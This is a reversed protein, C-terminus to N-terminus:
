VKDAEEWTTAWDALKRIGKMREEVVELRARDARWRQVMVQFYQKMDGDYLDMCEAQEWLEKVLGQFREPLSKVADNITKGM